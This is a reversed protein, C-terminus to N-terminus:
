VHSLLNSLLCKQAYPDVGASWRAGILFSTLVYGGTAALPRLAEVDM